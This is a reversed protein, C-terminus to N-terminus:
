SIAQAIREALAQIEFTETPRTVESMINQRVLASVAHFHVAELGHGKYYNKRFTFQTLRSFQDASSPAHLAIEAHDQPNLLFIHRLPRPQQCFTEAPMLFKAKDARMSALNASSHGLITMASQSLRLAPFAPHVMPASANEFEIASIDDSIMAFGRARMAALLTSKGAGSPGLFLVAGSSTEIASAHLTLLRRQQLLAAFASGLLYAEIDKEDAGRAPDILIDRGQTVRFRALDPIDLLFRDENAQWNRRLRGGGDPELREEIPGLSIRVDPPAQPADQLSYIPQDSAINLSFARYHYPKSM